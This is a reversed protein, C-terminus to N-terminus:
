GSESWECVSLRFSMLIFIYYIITILEIINKVVSYALTEAYM